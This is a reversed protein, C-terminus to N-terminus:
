TFDDTGSTSLYRLVFEATAREGKSVEPRVSKTSEHFISAQMRLSQLQPQVSMDPKPAEEFGFPETLFDEILKLIGL